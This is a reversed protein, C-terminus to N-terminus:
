SIWVVLAVAFMLCWAIFALWGIAKLVTMATQEFMTIREKHM